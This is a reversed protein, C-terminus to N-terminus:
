FPARCHALHSIMIELRMLTMAQLFLNTSRALYAGYAISQEAGTGGKGARYKITQNAADFQFGGHHSANRLQNDFEQCLATFAANSAFANCRSAKDLAVYKERTLSQFEDFRRGAIINNIYALLDVSSSYAEFANGYFMRTKDFDVTSAVDGDPVGLGQTILFLVQSFDSFSIFYSKILEFYRAGREISLEADYVKLLREFEPTGILPKIQAFSNAFHADYAPQCL